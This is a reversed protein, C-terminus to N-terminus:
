IQFFNIHKEISWRPKIVKNICSLFSNLTVLFHLQKSVIEYKLVFIVMRASCRGLCWLKCCNDEMRECEYNEFGAWYWGILKKKIMGDEKQRRIKWYISEESPPNGEKFLLVWSNWITQYLQFAKNKVADIM